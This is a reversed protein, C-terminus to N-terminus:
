CARVRAAGVGVFMEVFDAGYISFFPVKAEVRPKALITKGPLSGVLLGVPIRGGLEFSPLIM